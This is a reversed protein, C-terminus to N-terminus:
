RGLALTAAWLLLFVDQALVLATGVPAGAVTAGLAGGVLLLTVGVAYPFAVPLRERTVWLTAVMICGAMLVDAAATNGPGAPVLIPLLAVTGGVLVPLAGDRSTAPVWRNAVTRTPTTTM